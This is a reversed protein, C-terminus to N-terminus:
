RDGPADGTKGAHRVYTRGVALSLAMGLCGPVILLERLLYGTWLPLILMLSSAITIPVSGRIRLPGRVALFFLASYASGTVAWGLFNALPVGYYAGEAEWAWLGADVIAPDLVSDVAVLFLAGFAVFRWPNGHWVRGAMAVSGLLLPLYAFAVIGPVTGFLLPGLAGTYQFAGYPVGTIIASGEIALSLSGLVAVIGMGRAAGVWRVLYYISPAALVLIFIGSIVPTQATASFRMGVIGVIFCCLGAFPLRATRAM